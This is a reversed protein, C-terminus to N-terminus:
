FLTKIHLVHFFYCLRGYLKYRRAKYSVNQRKKNKMEYVRMFPGLKIHSETVTETKKKKNNHREIVKTWRLYYCM